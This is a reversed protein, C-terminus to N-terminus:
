SPSGAAVIPIWRVYYYYYYYTLHIGATVARAGSAAPAALPAKAPSEAPVAGATAAARKQLCRYIYICCYVYHRFLM